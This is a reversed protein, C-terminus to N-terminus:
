ALPDATFGPLRSGTRGSDERHGRFDDYKDGRVKSTIFLDSLIAAKRRLRGIDKHNEYDAATDIHRYGLQLATKVVETCEDGKLPWTGLGLVPMEYGSNLVVTKM